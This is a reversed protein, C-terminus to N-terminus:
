SDLNKIVASLARNFRQLKGENMEKLGLEAAERDAELGARMHRMFEPSGKFSLTLGVSENGELTIDRPVDSVERVVELKPDKIELAEDGSGLRSYIHKIGQQDKIYFNAVSLPWEREFVENGIHWDSTIRSGDGFDKKLFFTTFELVDFPCTSEDLLREVALFRLTEDDVSAEAWAEELWERQDDPLDGGMTDIVSTIAQQAHSDEDSGEPLAPPYTFQNLVDSYAFRLRVSQRREVVGSGDPAQRRDIELGVRLEGSDTEFAIETYRRFYQDAFPQLRELHHAFEERTEESPPLLLDPSFTDFESGPSM